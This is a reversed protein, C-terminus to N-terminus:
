SSNSYIKTTYLLRKVDVLDLVGRTRLSTLGVLVQKCRASVKYLDEQSGWEFLVGDKRVTVM